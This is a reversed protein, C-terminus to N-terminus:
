EQPTQTDEAQTEEPLVMVDKKTTPLDVGATSANNMIGLAVMISCIANVINMVATNDVEIGCNVLIIIVYGAIGIVTGPNKLRALYEKWPTM